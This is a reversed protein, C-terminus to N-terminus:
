FFDGYSENHCNYPINKIDLKTAMAQRTVKFSKALKDLDYKCRHVKKKLALTPILLESACIDAQKERLPKTKEEAEYSTFVKGTHNLLLHALEHAINFRQQAKSQHQSIIILNKHRGKYLTASETNIDALKIKVKLLKAARNLNIPIEFNYQNLFNRAKLEAQKLKM